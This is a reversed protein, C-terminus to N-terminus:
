DSIRYAIPATLHAMVLGILRRISAVPAGGARNRAGISFVISWQRFLQRYAALLSSDPDYINTSEATVGNLEVIALDRGAMFAQVDGYRIDFRGVFFGGYARAIEDIRRELAQTLLHRGDKFLTGQAHNGAIALQFRAGAPLIRSRADRHRALFLGAQMRYRPHSWILEELTRRGDGVVVPFHKDTISLIRGRASGPMRYYFVGAEYPGAHYPQVLVPDAARLLYDDLAASDRVLKIGIGRQGVDPKAILPYAWGMRGIAAHAAALRHSTSGEHILLSPITCDRPLRQLIEHKSEGVFGGDPMGPNAATLTALGRYRLALIAVWVAVPSYFLWM